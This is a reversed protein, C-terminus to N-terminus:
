FVINCSFIPRGVKSFGDDVYKGSPWGGDKKRTSNMVGGTISGLKIKPRLLITCVSTELLDVIRPALKILIFV